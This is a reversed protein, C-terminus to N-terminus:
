LTPPDDSQRRRQPSFRRSWDPLRERIARIDNGLLESDYLGQNSNIANILVKLRIKVIESGINDFNALTNEDM